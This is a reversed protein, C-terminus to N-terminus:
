PPNFTGLLNKAGRLNISTKGGICSDAQGVLTTPYFTWEVGRYLLSAVFGTLDQVVGGGIAVLRENRRFGTAVIEEIMVLAHEATKIREEAAVQM